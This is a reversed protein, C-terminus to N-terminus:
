LSFRFADKLVLTAWNSTLTNGTDLNMWDDQLTGYVSSQLRETGDDDFSTKFFTYSIVIRAKWPL